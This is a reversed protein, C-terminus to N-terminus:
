IQDSRMSLIQISEIETLSQDRAAFQQMKALDIRLVELNVEGRLVSLVKRAYSSYQRPLLNTKLLKVLQTLVHNAEDTPMNLIQNLIRFPPSPDGVRLVQLNDMFPNLNKLPSDKPIPKSSQLAKIEPSFSERQAIKVLLTLANKFEIMKLPGSLIPGECGKKRNASANVYFRLIQSIVRILRFYNSYRTFWSNTVVTTGVLKNIKRIGVHTVNNAPSFKVKESWAQNNSSLWDPGKWWITSNLLEEPLLGRSIIDAPNEKSIVHDWYFNKTLHQIKQVRNAEYVELKYSPTHIWYLVIESDSWLRVNSIQINHYVNYINHILESLLLAANLELKPISQRKLPSVRSKSMIVNVNVKGSNDISRMYVVAGYAESSADAFGHLEYIIPNNSSFLYRPIRLTKLTELQNAFTKWQDLIDDPITDDWNLQKNEITRTWVVQMLLKAITIVPGILGLPDYITAIQSLLQRKTHVPTNEVKFTKPYIMDENTLWHMGLTTIGTEGGLSLVKQKERQNEPIHELLRPHNASWKCLPLGASQTLKILQKQILIAEEITNAGSLTDDVYTDKLLVPSAKPYNMKEDDALKKLCRTALYPSSTVGFTVTQLAYTKIPEHPSKRWLILQFCTHEPIVRIQRYMKTIDATFVYKYTRFRLLIAILESQVVPGVMLIDNLSKQNSAKMSADFVTRLKTTTSDEKFVAHHPIYYANQEPTIKVEKMHDLTIYEELCNTYM